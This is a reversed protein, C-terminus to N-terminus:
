AHDFGHDFRVVAFGAHVAFRAFTGLENDQEWECGRALASRHGHHFSPSDIFAEIRQSQGFLQEAVGKM